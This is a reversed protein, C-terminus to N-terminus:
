PIPPLGLYASIGTSAVGQALANVISLSCSCIVDIGKRINRWIKPDRIKGVLEHGSVSLDAIRMKYLDSSATTKILDADVCYRAHYILTENDYDKMLEKQYEPLESTPGLSQVSEGLDVDVFFCHKRIGTNEEV